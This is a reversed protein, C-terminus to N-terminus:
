SRMFLNDLDCKAMVQGDEWNHRIFHPIIARDVLDIANKLPDLLLLREGTCDTCIAIFSFYRCTHLCQLMVDVVEQHTIVNNHAM